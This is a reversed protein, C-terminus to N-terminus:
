KEHWVQQFNHSFYSNGVSLRLEQSSSGQNTVIEFRHESGMIDGPISVFIDRMNDVYMNKYEEERYKVELDELNTTPWWVAENVRKWQQRNFLCHIFGKREIQKYVSFSHLLLGIESPNFVVLHIVHRDDLQTAKIYDLYINGNRLRERNILYSNRTVRHNRYNLYLALAAVILSVISISITFYEQIM